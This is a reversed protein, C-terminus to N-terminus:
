QYDELWITRNVVSHFTGVIECLGTRGSASNPDNLM